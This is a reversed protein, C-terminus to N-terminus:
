EGASGPSFLAFHGPIVGASFSQMLGLGSDLMYVTGPNIYDGADAIFVTGGDLSVWIGYPVTASAAGTESLSTETVDMGSCDIVYLTYDPEPTPIAPDYFTENRNGLVYLHGNSYTMSSVRIEGIWGPVEPINGTDGAKGTMDEPSAVATGDHGAGSGYAQGDTADSTPSELVAGTGIDYVYIGSHVTAYDGPSSIWLRGCDDAEIDCINPAVEVSTEVTFTAEDIVTLRNDYNGSIGGSNAVYIKGNAEAIGEPQYGVGVNDKVKLSSVDIRYVAGPRDEGGYYAGAWSTVYAYEDCFTIDRPSPVTVAAIHELTYADMVEVLDSGNIVTWLKGDHVAIDNGTDGLEHVVDPNAAPFADTYYTGDDFDYFDISANNMGMQGENLIYLRDSDAPEPHSVVPQVHDTCSSFSVTIGASLLIIALPNRHTNTMRDSM